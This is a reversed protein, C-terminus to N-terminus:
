SALALGVVLKLEKQTESELVGSHRFRSLRSWSLWSSRQELRTM